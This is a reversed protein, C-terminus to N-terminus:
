PINALHELVTEPRVRIRWNEALKRWRVVGDRDIIFIGPRAIDTGNPPYGDKHRLGFADTAKLDPDSLIPFDLNLRTVVGANKEISDVCIAVVEAGTQRFESIRSQM